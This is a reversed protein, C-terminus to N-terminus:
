LVEAWKDEILKKSANHTALLNSDFKPEYLGLNGTFVCRGHSAVTAKELFSENPPTYGVGYRIFRLSSNTRVIEELHQAEIGAKSAQLERLLPCSRIVERHGKMTISRNYSVELSELNPFSSAIFTMASDTLSIIAQDGFQGMLTLERLESLSLLHHLDNDTIGHNELSLTRLNPLLGITSLLESPNQWIDDRDSSRYESDPFTPRCLRLYQLNVLPRIISSLAHLSEFHGSGLSLKQLSVQQNLASLGEEEVLIRFTHEEICVDFTINASRLRISDQQFVDRLSEGSLQFSGMTETKTNWLEDNNNL